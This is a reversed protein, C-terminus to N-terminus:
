ARDMVVVQNRGRRKAAYVARDAAEVVEKVRSHVADGDEDLNSAVGVSLTVKVSVRKGDSEAPVTLREVGARVEECIGRARECRLGPFFVTIEEGGTRCVVGRDGVFTRIAQAVRRLVTDGAAHGHTDNVRKFHDIDVLAVAYCAGLDTSSTQNVIAEAYAKNYIQTLADHSTRHHLGILWEAGVLLGLAAPLLVVLLREVSPPFAGYATQERTIWHLPEYLLRAVPELGVGLQGLGGALTFLLLGAAAGGAGGETRWLAFAAAGAAASALVLLGVGWGSAALWGPVVLTWAVLFGVEVAVLRGALVRIEQRTYVGRVLTAAAVAAPAAFHTAIVLRSPWRALEQPLALRGGGGLVGLDHLAQVFALPLYLFALLYLRPDRLLPYTREAVVPVLLLPLLLLSTLGLGREAGWGAPDLQWGALVATATLAAGVVLAAAAPRLEGGSM